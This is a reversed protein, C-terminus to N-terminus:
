FKLIPYSLFYVKLDVKEEYKFCIEAGFSAKSDYKGICHHPKADCFWIFHTRITEMLGKPMYTFTTGTDLFGVSYQETNAMLHNNMKVGFVGIKYNGVPLLKVWNTTNDIAGYSNYGGFQIYGGDKGLCITFM